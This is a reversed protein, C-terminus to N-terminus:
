KPSLELCTSSIFPTTKLATKNHLLNASASAFYHSSSCIFFFGLLSCYNQVFLLTQQDSSILHISVLEATQAKSGSQPVCYIQSHFFLPQGRLFFSASLTFMCLPPSSSIITYCLIRKNHIAQFLKHPTSM